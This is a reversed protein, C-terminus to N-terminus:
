STLVWIIAAIGGMIAIGWLVGGFIWFNQQVRRKRRYDQSSHIEQKTAYQTYLPKNNM